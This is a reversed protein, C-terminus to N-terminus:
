ARQKNHTVHKILKFSLKKKELKRLAAKCNRDVAETGSQSATMRARASHCSKDPAQLQSDAPPVAPVHVALRPLPFMSPWAEPCQMTALTHELRWGRKIIAWSLCCPGDAFGLTSNMGSLELLLPRYLHPHRSDEEQWHHGPWHFSNCLRPSWKQVNSIGASGAPTDAQDSLAVSPRPCGSCRHAYTDQHPIQM